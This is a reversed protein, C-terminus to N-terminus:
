SMKRFVLVFFPTFLTTITGKKIVKFVALSNEGVIELSDDSIRSFSSIAPLYRKQTFLKAFVTFFTKIDELHKADDSTLDYTQAQQFCASRDLVTLPLIKSLHTNLVKDFPAKAFICVKKYAVGPQFQCFILCISLLM